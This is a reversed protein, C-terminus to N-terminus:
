EGSATALTVRQFLPHEATGHLVAVLRHADLVSREPRCSLVVLTEANGEDRLRDALGDLDPDGYAPPLEYGAVVDGGVTLRKDPHVEITLRNGDTAPMREQSTPLYLPEAADLATFAGSEDSTSAFAIETFGAQGVTIIIALLRDFSQYAEVLILVPRLGDRQRAVELVTFLRPVSPSEELGAALESESMLVEDDLRLEDWDLEIRLTDDTEFVTEVTPEVKVAEAKDTYCGLAFLAVISLFLSCVIHYRGM